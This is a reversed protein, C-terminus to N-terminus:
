SELHESISIIYQILLKIRICYILDIVM